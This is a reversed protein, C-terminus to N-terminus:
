KDGECYTVCCGPSEWVSVESLRREGSLPQSIDIQEYIWKALFEATFNEENLVENLIYHDLGDLLMRLANKVLAFDVLMNLDNLKSGEIVVEIEWRHGHMRSCKGVYDRIYHAADIHDKVKLRYMKM